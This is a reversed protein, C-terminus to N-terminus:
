FRIFVCLIADTGCLITDTGMPSVGEDQRVGSILRFFWRLFGYRRCLPNFRDLNLISRNRNGCCVSIVLGCLIENTSVFSLVCLGWSHCM